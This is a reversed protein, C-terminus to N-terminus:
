LGFLQYLLLWFELFSKVLSGCVVLVCVRLTMFGDYMIFMSLEKTFVFAVLGGSIFLELCLSHVVFELYNQGRGDICGCM